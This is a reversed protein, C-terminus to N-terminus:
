TEVERGALGPGGSRRTDISGGAGVSPRGVGAEAAVGMETVATGAGPAVGGRRHRRAAGGRGIPSGPRGRPSTSATMPSPAGLGVREVSWTGGRHSRRRVIDLPLGEGAQDPALLPVVVRAWHSSPSGPWGRGASRRDPRLARQRCMFVGIHHRHRVGPLVRPERRPGPRMAHGQLISGSNALGLEIRSVRTTCADSRGAAPRRTPRPSTLGGTWAQRGPADVLDVGPDGAVRGHTGRRIKWLSRSFKVHPHVALVRRCCRRGPRNGRVRCEPDAVPAGAAPARAGPGAVARGSPCTSSFM